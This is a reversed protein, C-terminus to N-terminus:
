WPWFEDMALKVDRRGAWWGASSWEWDIPNEVLGRRVPNAHIYDLVSMFAERSFINRDYGGGPQWFHREVKGGPQRDTLRELWDLDTKKLFAMARRSVPQKVSKLFKRMKYAYRQPLTLVHAHEPMIVYGFLLFDHKSRARDLADVLWDRSRDKSLLNYGHYCSFTLEHAHGPHDFSRRRHRITGNKLIM